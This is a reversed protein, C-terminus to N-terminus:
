QLETVCLSQRGVRLKDIAIVLKEQNSVKGHLRRLQSMLDGVM